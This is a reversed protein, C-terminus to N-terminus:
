IWCYCYNEKLLDNETWFTELSCAADHSLEKRLIGLFAKGLANLRGLECRLILSCMRGMQSPTVPSHRESPANM